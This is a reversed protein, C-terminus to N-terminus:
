ISPVKFNKSDVDLQGQLVRIEESEEPCIGFLISLLSVKARALTFDSNSVIQNFSNIAM